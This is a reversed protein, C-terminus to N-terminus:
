YIANPPLAKSPLYSQSNDGSHLTNTVKHSSSFAVSAIETEEGHVAMGERSEYSVLGHLCPFAVGKYRRTCGGNRHVVYTGLKWLIGEEHGETKFLKQFCRLVRYFLSPREVLSSAPEESAEAKDYFCKVLM